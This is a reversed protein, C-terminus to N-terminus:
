TVHVEQLPNKHGFVFIPVNQLAGKDIREVRDILPQCWSAPKSFARM